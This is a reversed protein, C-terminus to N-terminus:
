YDHKASGEKREQQRKYRQAQVENRFYVTEGDATHRVRHTFGNVSYKLPEIIYKDSM